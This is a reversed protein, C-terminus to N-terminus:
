KYNVYGQHYLIEMVSPLFSLATLTEGVEKRPIIDVNNIDVIEPCQRSDHFYKFFVAKPEIDM